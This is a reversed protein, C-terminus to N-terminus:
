SVIEAVRVNGQRIDREWVVILRYGREAAAHLKLVDHAQTRRQASTLLDAAYSAPNGHIYDGHVEVIVRGPLLFDYVYRGLRFQWKYDVKAEDLMRAFKAELRNFSRAPRGTVRPVVKMMEALRWAIARDVARRRAQRRRALEDGESRV